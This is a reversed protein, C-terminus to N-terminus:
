EVSSWQLAFNNSACCNWLEFQNFLIYSLLTAFSRPGSLREMLLRCFVKQLVLYLKNMGYFDVPFFSWVTSNKAM